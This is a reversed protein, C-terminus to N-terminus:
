DGGWMPTCPPGPGSAREGFLGGRGAEEARAKRSESRQKQQLQLLGLRKDVREGFHALGDPRQAEVLGEEQQEDQAAPQKGDAPLDGPVLQRLQQQEEHAGGCVDKLEGTFGQFYLVDPLARPARPEAAAGVVSSAAQGEM